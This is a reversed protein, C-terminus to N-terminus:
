ATTSPPDGNLTNRAAAVIFNNDNETLERYNHTDLYPSDAAIIAREYRALEDVTLVVHTADDRNDPDVCDYIHLGIASEAVADVIAYQM